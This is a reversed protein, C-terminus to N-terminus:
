IQKSKLIPRVICETGTYIEEPHLEKVDQLRGQQPIDQDIGVRELETALTQTNAYITALCKQHHLEFTITRLLLPFLDKWAREVVEEILLALSEGYIKHVERAGALKLKNRELHDEKKLRQSESRALVADDIMSLFGGSSEESSVSRMSAQKANSQAKAKAAGDTLYEVKKEYHSLNRSLRGFEIMRSKVRSTVVCYWDEAYKVIQEQYMDANGQAMQIAAQNPLLVIHDKKRKAEDLNPDDLDVVTMTTLGTTSTYAVVCTGSEDDEAAAEITDSDLYVVDEGEEKDEDDYNDKMDETVFNDQQQMSEKNDDVFIETIGVGDEARDMEMVEASRFSTQSSNSDAVSEVVLAPTDNADAGDMEAMRAQDDDRNAPKEGYEGRMLVAAKCKPASAPPSPTESINQTDADDNAGAEGTIVALPSDATFSTSLLTATQFLYFCLFFINNLHLINLVESSFAFSITITRISICIM